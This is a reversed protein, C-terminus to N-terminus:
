RNRDADKAQNHWITANTLTEHPEDHPPTLLGFGRHFIWLPSEGTAMAVARALDRPDDPERRVYIM